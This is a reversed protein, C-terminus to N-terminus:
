KQNINKINEMPLSVDVKWDESKCEVTAYKINSNIRWPESIASSDSYKVKTSFYVVPEKINENLKIKINEVDLTTTIYEGNKAKWSFTVRIQSSGNGSISGMFIFFGGCLNSETTFLNVMKRLEHPGAFFDDSSEANQECICGAMSLLLIFISLVFIFKKM